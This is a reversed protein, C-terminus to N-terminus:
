TPLTPYACVPPWLEWLCYAQKVNQPKNTQLPIKKNHYFVCLMLNVM